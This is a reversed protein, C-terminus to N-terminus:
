SEHPVVEARLGRRMPEGAIRVRASISRARAATRGQLFCFNGLRDGNDANAAPEGSRRVEFLEPAQQAVADIGDRFDGTIPPVDVREIIWDGARDALHASAPAPKKGAEITKVWM